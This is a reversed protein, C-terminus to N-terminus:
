VALAAVKEQCHSTIHSSQKFYTRKCLTLHVLVLSFLALNFFAKWGKWFQKFCNCLYIISYELCNLVPIHRIVSTKTLRDNLPPSFLWLLLALHVFMFGTINFVFSCIYIYYWINYNDQLVIDYNDRDSYVSQFAKSKNINRNITIRIIMTKKRFHM